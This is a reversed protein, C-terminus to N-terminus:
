FPVKDEVYATVAEYDENSLVSFHDVLLGEYFEKVDTDEAIAHIESNDILASFLMSAEDGTIDASLPALLAIASHTQDFSKSGVLKKIALIKEIDSALKIDPFHSKVFSKIGDYLFMRAKKVTKWENFLFSNPVEAGMPSAFDKDRSIVHIDTQDPVKSILHEWNLRDGLSGDKGPPNGREMRKRADEVDEESILALPGSSRLEIFLLDAALTQNIIEARAKEILIARKSSVEKLLQRVEKSEPHHEMFRPISLSTTFKELNGLSDVLKRDRNRYFEQNVINTVYLKVEKGQILKVVKNLEEINDDTYAYLSLFINTDIFVHLM